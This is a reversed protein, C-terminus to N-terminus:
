PFWNVTRPSDVIVLTPQVQLQIVNVYRFCLNSFFSKATEEYSFINLSVFYQSIRAKMRELSTGIFQHLRGPRSESINKFPSILSLLILFFSLNLPM